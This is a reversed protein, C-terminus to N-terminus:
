HFLSAQCTTLLECIRPACALVKIGGAHLFAYQGATNSVLVQFQNYAEFPVQWTMLEWLVIGFSYVDAAKSHVQHAVVQM